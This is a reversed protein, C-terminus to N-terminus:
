VAGGRKRMNAAGPLAHRSPADGSKKAIQDLCHRPASRSSRSSTMRRGNRLSMSSRPWSRTTWLRAHSPGLSHYLNRRGNPGAAATPQSICVPQSGLGGCMWDHLIFACLLQHASSALSTAPHGHPRAACEGSANRFEESANRIQGPRACNIPMSLLGRM